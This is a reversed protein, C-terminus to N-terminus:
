HETPSAPEPYVTDENPTETGATALAPLQPIGTLARLSHPDVPPVLTLSEVSLTDATDEYLLSITPQQAPLLSPSLHMTEVESNRALNKSPKSNVDMENVIVSQVLLHPQPQEPTTPADAPSQTASPTSSSGGSDCHSTSGSGGPSGSASPPSPSSLSPSSHQNICQAVAFGALCCYAVL